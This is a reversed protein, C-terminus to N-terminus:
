GVGAMVREQLAALGPTPASEPEATKTAPAETAVAEEKPVVRVNRADTFVVEGVEPGGDVTEQVKVGVRDREDRKRDLPQPRM